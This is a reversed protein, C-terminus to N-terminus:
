KHIASDKSLVPLTKIFYIFYKTNISFDARLDGCGASSQPRPQIQAWPEEPELGVIWFAIRNTWCSLKEHPKGFVSSAQGFVNAGCAEGRTDM